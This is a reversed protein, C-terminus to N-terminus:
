CRRDYPPRGRKCSPYHPKILDAWEDWPITEDMIDLFKERKTTRKRLSSEM